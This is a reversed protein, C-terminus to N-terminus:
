RRRDHRPHRWDGRERSQPRGRVCQHRTEHELLYVEPMPVGSAIAMEEVVNLLRRQQPDTTDPSRARWGAIERGGGGGGGLVSPRTCSEGLGIIAGVVALDDDVGHQPHREMWEGLPRRRGTLNEQGRAFVFGVVVNVAAIVRVAGRAAFLVVLWRTMRRSAEQREFFNM